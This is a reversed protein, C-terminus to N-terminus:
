IHNCYLLSEQLDVFLAREREQPRCVFLMVTWMAKKWHNAQPSLSLSVDPLLIQVSIIARKLYRYYLVQPSPWLSSNGGQHINRQAVYAGKVLKLELTLQLCESEKQMPMMKKSRTCSNRRDDWYLALANTCSAIWNISFSSDRM